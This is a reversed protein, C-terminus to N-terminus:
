PKNGSMFEQLWAHRYGLNTAILLAIIRTFYIYAVVLQYFQKFLTLKRISHEALEDAAVADELRLFTTLILYLHRSGSSLM